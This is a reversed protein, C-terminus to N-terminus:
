NFLMHEWLSSCSVTLGLIANNFIGLIGTKNRWWPAVTTNTELDEISKGTAALADMPPFMKVEKGNEEEKSACPVCTWM